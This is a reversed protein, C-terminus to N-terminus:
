NEDNSQKESDPVICMTSSQDSKIIFMDKFYEQFLIDNILYEIHNDRVYKELMDGLIMLYSESFTTIGEITISRIPRIKRPYKQNKSEPNLVPRNRKDPLNVNINLLNLLKMLYNHMVDEMNEPPQQLIGNAIM